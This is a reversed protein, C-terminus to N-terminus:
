NKKQKSRLIRDKDKITKMSGDPNLDDPPINYLELTKQM